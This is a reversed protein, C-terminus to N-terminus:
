LAGGATKTMADAIRKLSEAISDVADGELVLRMPFDHPGTFLNLTNEGDVANVVYSKVSHALGELESATETMQEGNRSDTVYTSFISAFRDIAEELCSSHRGYQSDAVRYKTARDEDPQAAVTLRTRTAKAKKNPEHKPIATM